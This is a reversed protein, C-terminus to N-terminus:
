GSAAHLYMDMCDVSRAAVALKGLRAAISMIDGCQEPVDADFPQKLASATVSTFMAQWTNRDDLGQWHLQRVRIEATSIHLLRHACTVYRRRMCRALMRFANFVKWVM